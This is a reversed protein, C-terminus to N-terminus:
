DDNDIEIRGSRGARWVAPDVPGKASDVETGALPIPLRSVQAVCRVVNVKAGRGGILPREAKRSARVHEDAHSYGSRNGSSQGEAVAGTLAFSLVYGRSSHLKHSSSPFIRGACNCDGEGRTPIDFKVINSVSLHNV